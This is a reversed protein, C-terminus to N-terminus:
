VRLIKDPNMLNDPDLAQKIARMIGVAEEGHEAALFEMKGYGAGGQAAAITRVMEAQEAVGAQITRIATRVAAAVSPFCGTASCNSCRPSWQRARPPM